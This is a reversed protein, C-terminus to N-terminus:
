NQICESSFFPLRDRLESFAGFIRSIKINLDRLGSNISKYKDIIILSRKQAQNNKIHEMMREKALKLYEDKLRQCASLMDIEEFRTLFFGADVEPTEIGATSNFISEIRTKFEAYRSIAINTLSTNSSENLFNEELFFFFAALELDFAVTLKPLCESIPAAVVDKIAERREPEFYEIWEPDQNEGNAGPTQLYASPTGALIFTFIFVSLLSCRCIKEFINLMATM